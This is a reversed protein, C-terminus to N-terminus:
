AFHPMMGVKITAVARGAAPDVASVTDDFENTVYAERGDPAIFTHRPGAGVAITKTVKDTATDIVSVTGDNNNTVWAETQDPNLFVNHDQVGVPVTNLTRGKGLDVVTVVGGFWSTVYLKGQMAEPPGARCDPALAFAVVALLFVVKMASRGNPLGVNRPCTAM